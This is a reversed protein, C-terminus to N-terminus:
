RRIRYFQVPGSAPVTAQYVGNTGTITAAAVNTLGTVTPGSLVSYASASNSAPGSFSIVFNTGSPVIGTIQPVSGSGAGILITELGFTTAANTGPPSWAQWASEGVPDESTTYLNGVNDWAVAKHPNGNVSITTVNTGTAADLIAVANGTALGVAVYTGAPNVAIAFENGPASTNDMRWNANTLPQGAYAPFRMVKYQTDLTPWCVVYIRGSRDVAIDYASDQLGNTGGVPVAKVGFDGNTLIGNTQMTWVNVGFGLGGQTNDTMWLRRDPGTGTVAFGSFSGGPNSDERMVYQISAPEIEQDWAMVVGNGSWDEAYFRDDAGVRVRFPSFNGAWPYGGDSFIGEDAPSADANLKQFGVLDSTNTTLGPYSNAVFVRGYYFSNTNQNVALGLPLWVQNGANTDSTTQTWNTGYGRSAATISFGYTGNVANSGSDTKGDWTLTNLGRTTGPSGGAVSITRIATAGSLIKVTVGASAPENLIYSLSLGQGPAISANNTSDNLKLNTAYVNARATSSASLIALALLAGRYVVNKPHYRM